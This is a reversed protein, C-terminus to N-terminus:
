TYADNGKSAGNLKPFISGEKDVVVVVVSVLFFFCGFERILRGDILFQGVVSKPKYKQNPHAYMKTCNNDCKLTHVM